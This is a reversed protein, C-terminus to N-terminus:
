KVNQSLVWDMGKFLGEGTLACCSQIHWKHDKVEHLGLADSIEASSMSGKLDSKNAYVLLIANKLSEQRLMDELEKKIILLRERDTSDVVMLIVDTNSYYISWSPRLSEQGGIDWMVFKINQYVVEEVNSGITPTTKVVENLLLKYLTTTKGANNLGVIIVKFEKLSFFLSWFKTFIAGM